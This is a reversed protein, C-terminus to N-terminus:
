SWNRLFVPSTPANTQFSRDNWAALAASISILNLCFPAQEVASGVGVFVRIRELRQLGGGQTPIVQILAHKDRANTYEGM